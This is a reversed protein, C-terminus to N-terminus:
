EAAAVPYVFLHPAETAVLRDGLAFLIRQNLSQTQRLPAEEHYYGLRWLYLQLMTVNAM